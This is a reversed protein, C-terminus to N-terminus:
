AAKLPPGGDAEMLSSVQWRRPRARTGGEPSIISYNLCFRRAGTQPTDPNAQGRGRARHPEYRRTVPKNRHRKERGGSVSVREERWSGRRRTKASFPCAIRPDSARKFPCKIGGSSARQKPAIRERKVALRTSHKERSFKPVLMKDVTCQPEPQADKTSLIRPM